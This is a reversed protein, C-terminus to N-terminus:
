EKIGLPFLAVRFGADICRRSPSLGGRAAARCGVATDDWGGGRLVREAGEKTVEPDRGGPLAVAYWDRCWEAVNGHMEHLCWANPKKQRRHSYQEDAKDATNRFCAYEVLKSEDDGFYFKTKTGARCAREWQAETPLTYEWDDPVRGAKREQDTLKRCFEVADDWCIYTAPFDDGEKAVPTKDKWPNSAMVQNWEAQTVECQGLWFGRTLMVEVQDENIWRDSESNPSGMTFEGAPCWVLTMKLGNDDRIEGAKKGRMPDAPSSKPKGLEGPKSEMAPVLAVTYLVCLVLARPAVSLRRKM